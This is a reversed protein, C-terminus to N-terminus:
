NSERRDFHEAQLLEGILQDFSGALTQKHCLASM